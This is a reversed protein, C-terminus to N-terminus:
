RDHCMGLSPHTQARFQPRETGIRGPIVREVRHQDTVEVIHMIQGPEGAGVRRQQDETVVPRRNNRLGDVTFVALAIWVLIFGVLRSGPMPEHYVALGLALQITPALYQLLGITTLPLRRAAAAFLLLPVGTALGASIM